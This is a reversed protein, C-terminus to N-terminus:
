RTRRYAAFHDSGLYAEESVVWCGHVGALEGIGLSGVARLGDGLVIPARYIELRDVLDAALFAAATQAGGEVYMYSVDKMRAVEAPGTLTRVNDLSARTLVWREPARGELGPLRVDLAPADARWTGGGVLIADAQARRAHVHARAESGTIWRSSGDALAICGDLSMALKLTIHPRGLRHRALYGALSDEAAPSPLLEADIGVDRLRAIGLGATRPDPDEVGVIVRAPRAEALLDACAPGRESVHACPELSVYINAGRAATGAEQLATAEAHPRGGARTWGRGVVRNDKVVVCGVAPNPRSLPRGRQALRATVALWDADTPM